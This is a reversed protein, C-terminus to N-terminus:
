KKAQGPPQKKGKGKAQGPPEKKGQYGPVWDRLIVAGDCQWPDDDGYNYLVWGGAAWGTAEARVSFAGGEDPFTEYTFYRVDSLDVGRNSLGEHDAAYYQKYRIFYFKQSHVIQPLVSQIELCRAQETQGSLSAAAVGALIAVLNVVVVLEILSFGEQVCRKTRVLTIWM